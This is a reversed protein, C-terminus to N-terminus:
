RDQMIILFTENLGMFAATCQRTDGTTRKLGGKMEYQDPWAVTSDGQQEEQWLVIAGFLFVFCFLFVVLVKFGFRKLTREQRRVSTYFTGEGWGIGFYTRM